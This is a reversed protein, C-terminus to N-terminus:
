RSGPWRVETLQFPADGGSAFTGSAPIPMEADFYVNLLYAMVQAPTVDDPFVDEFGPTSAAFLTGFATRLEDDTATAPDVGEGRPGHDSMVIVIPPTPSSATIADIARIAEENVYEIQGLLLRGFEERTLNHPGIRDVFRPPLGSTVPAGGPGFVFPTHPAMVHAFLFRPGLSRDAAVVPIEAFSESIQSRLNKASTERDLMTLVDLVFTTGILQREFENLGGLQVLVDAKRLAPDEYPIAYTVVTYGRNRLFEFVPNGNLVRRATPQAPTDGNLVGALPEVDGLLSAHFLSTLTLQTFLYNSHSAQSVEFGRRALEDLFAANDFGFTEQLVDARPYGDLLIVYIDPGQRVAESRDPAAPVAVGEQLDGISLTGRGIASVLVVILLAAALLNYGRNLRVSLRRRLHWRRILYGAVALLAGLVSVVLFIEWWALAAVGAAALTVERGITTVAIIATALFGASLWSGLLIRGLVIVGIAFAPVALLARVAAFPSPSASVYANAVWALAFVVPHWPLKSVSRIWRRSRSRHM